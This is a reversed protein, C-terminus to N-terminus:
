GQTLRGRVCEAMWRNLITLDQERTGPQLYGDPGFEPTLTQVRGEELIRAWWRWHAELVDDESSAPDPLQPGQAYGLRLHLHDCRAALLELFEPLEDLVLRECVVCWHSFDGTLRIEPLEELLARTQWPSFTPRSRHTEWVLQLGRSQGLALGGEYFALAEKFVWADSGGMINVKMPGMESIGGDLARELDDLHQSVSGGPRPVYGGGTVVEAIWPLHEEGLLNAVEDQSDVTTPIPGEIGDFGWAAAKEIAELMSLRNGWCSLFFRPLLTPM